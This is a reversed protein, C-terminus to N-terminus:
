KRAATKKAPIKSVKYRAKKEGVQKKPVLTILTRLANNVSEADPFYDAVDAGLRVVPGFRQETITGDENHIRISYGQQMARYYKGRVGIKGSFDYEPLMDDDEDLNKNEKKKMKKNPLQEHLIEVIKQLHNQRKM